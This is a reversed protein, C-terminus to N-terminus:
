QGTAKALALKGRAIASLEGTCRNKTHDDTDFASLMSQLAALLDPAAAILKANAWATQRNVRNKEGQFGAHIACIEEKEPGLILAWKEELTWPGKTHANM